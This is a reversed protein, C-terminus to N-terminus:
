RRSQIEQCIKSVQARDVPLGVFAKMVLGINVPGDGVVELIKAEIEDRTMETPLWEVVQWQEPALWEEKVNPKYQNTKPYCEGVPKSINVSQTYAHSCKENFDLPKLLKAQEFSVYTSQPNM